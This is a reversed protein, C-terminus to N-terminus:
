TAPTLRVQVPRGHVTEFELVTRPGTIRARCPQGGWDGYVGIVMPPSASHALLALAQAYE